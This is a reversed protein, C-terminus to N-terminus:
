RLFFKTCTSCLRGFVSISLLYVCLQSLFRTFPLNCLFCSIFDHVERLLFDTLFVFRYVRPCRGLCNIAGMFHVLLVASRSYSILFRMGCVAFTGFLEVCISSVIISSCRSYSFILLLQKRNELCSALHHQFIM